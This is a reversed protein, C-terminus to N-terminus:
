DCKRFLVCITKIKKCETNVM